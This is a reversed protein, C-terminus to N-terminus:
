VIKNSKHITQQLNKLKGDEILQDIVKNIKDLLEQNGKKVAIAYKDEFLVGDLIKLTGNSAVLQEAPYQDMVICDVKNNKM